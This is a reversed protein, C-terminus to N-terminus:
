TLSKEYLETCFDIILIIHNDFHTKAPSAKLPMLVSFSSRSNAIQTSLRLLSGESYTNVIFYLRRLAKQRELSLTNSVTFAYNRMKAFSNIEEIIFKINRIRTVTEADKYSRVSVIVSKQKAFAPYMITVTRKTPNVKGTIM